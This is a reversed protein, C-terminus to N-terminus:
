KAYVKNKFEIVEKELKPLEEYVEELIPTLNADMAVWDIYPREGKEYILYTGVNRDDISFVAWVKNSCDDTMGQDPNHNIGYLEIGNNILWEIAPQINKESRM